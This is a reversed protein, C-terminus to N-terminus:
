FTLWEGYKTKCLIEENKKLYITQSIKNDQSKLVCKGLFDKQNCRTEFTYSPQSDIGLSLDELIIDAKDQDIAVKRFNELDIKTINTDLAKYEVCWSTKNRKVLVSVSLIQDNRKSNSKSKSKSKCYSLLLSFCLLFIKRVNM